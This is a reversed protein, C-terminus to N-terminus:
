VIVFAALTVVGILFGRSLIKWGLGRAFVGEKPHRPNRQMVNEEPQDLGLAMAPLGDTVLNVWLIQIPVLPLPLSMLM